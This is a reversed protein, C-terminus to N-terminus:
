KTQKNKRLISDGMQSSLRDNWKNPDQNGAKHNTTEDSM